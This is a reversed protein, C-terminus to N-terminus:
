RKTEDCGTGGKYCYHGSLCTEIAVDKGQEIDYLVGATPCSCPANLVKNESDVECDPAQVFKEGLSEKCGSISLPYIVSTDTCGDVGYHCYEGTLCVEHVIKEGKELSFLGGATPCSCPSNKVECTSFDVECIPAQVFAGGLSDKCSSISSLHMEDTCGDVGYHCYEGAECIEPKMDEGNEMEYLDGATPCSCPSNQVGCTSFDVVCIEPGNLNLIANGGFRQEFGKMYEDIELTKVSEMGTEVDMVARFVSALLVFVTLIIIVAISVFFLMMFGSIIGGRKSMPMFM